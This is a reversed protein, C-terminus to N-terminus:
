ATALSEALFRATLADLKDFQARLPADPPPTPALLQALGPRLVCRYVRSCFLATRLGDPTPRYRQTGPLHTILGHLRLRQSEIVRDGGWAHDASSADPRRWYCVSTVTSPPPTATGQIALSYPRRFEPSSTQGQGPSYM